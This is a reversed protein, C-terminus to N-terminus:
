QKTAFKYLIYSIIIAVLGTIFFSVSYNLLFYERLFLMLSGLLFFIAMLFFIMSLALEVTLTEIKKIKDKIMGSIRGIFNDKINNMIMTMVTNEGAAIEESVQKAKVM